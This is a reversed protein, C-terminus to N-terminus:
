LFEGNFLDGDGRVFIAIGGCRLDMLRKWKAVALVVKSTVEQARDLHSAELAFFKM